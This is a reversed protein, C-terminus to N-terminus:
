QTYTNSFVMINHNKERQLIHSEKMIPTYLGVKVYTTWGFANPVEEHHEIGPVRVPPGTHSGDIELM